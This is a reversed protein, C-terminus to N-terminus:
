NEVNSACLSKSFNLNNSFKLEDLEKSKSKM